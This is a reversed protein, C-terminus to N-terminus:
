VTILHFLQSELGPLTGLPGLAESNRLSSRAFKSVGIVLFTLNQYFVTTPIDTPSM